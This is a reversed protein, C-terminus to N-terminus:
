ALRGYLQGPLVSDRLRRLCDVNRSGFACLMSPSWKGASETGDPYWFLLRGKAFLVADANALTFQGWATDPSKAPVLFLGDGHAAIRRAWPMISSYPPNLWVRGFWEVALGDEPPAIMRAATRWPMSPACAPDLDFPGAAEILWPPTLWDDPTFKSDPRNREDPM